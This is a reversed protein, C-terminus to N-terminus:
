SLKDYEIDDCTCYYVVDVGILGMKTAWDQKM